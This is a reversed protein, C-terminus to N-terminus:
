AKNFFNLMTLYQDIILKEDFKTKIFERSFKGMLARQEGTMYIIKDFCSALSEASRVDCIFGNLNDLVVERCGPANSVILPKEMAAAEIMTRPIGERYSPLVVCDAAAMYPRVDDTVGLYEVLGSKVWLDIIDNGIASPNNSDCPGLLQFIVDPNSERVLKAADVYERIGKDWLMRAILLFRVKDDRRDNVVPSFYNLNVGEGNLVVAKQASVLKSEIFVTKDDENLFWVQFPFKFSFKYLVRAVKSVFNSNIFTYGLGTTVALSPISLLRAAISGYINPKITYHIVLDPKLKKYLFLLRIFVFFDEVPSVGKASLSFDVVECGISVLKSSFSDSPCVVTVKFGDAILRKILGLRFNYLSWATNSVLLLKM